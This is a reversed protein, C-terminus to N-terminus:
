YNSFNIWVIFWIKKSIFNKKQKYKKFYDEHKFKIIKDLRKKFYNYSCTRNISCIGNIPFNYIKNSTFNCSLIKKNMPFVERLIGSVRKRGDNMRFLRVKIKEGLFEEYQEPVFLPRNIGPSSVELTYDSGMTQEAALYDAIQRSVTACDDVTIGGDSDIYVRVLADKDSFIREIGLLEYGLGVITPEVLDCLGDRLNM